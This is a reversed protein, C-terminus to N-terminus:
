GSCLRESTWPAWRRRPRAAREGTVAPTAGAALGVGAGLQAGGDVVQVPDAGCRPGLARVGLEAGGAGGDGPWAAVHESREAAVPIEALPSTPPVPRFM